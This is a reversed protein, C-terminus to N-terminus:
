WAYICAYNGLESVVRELFALVEAEVDDPRDTKLWKPIYFEPWRPAKMGVVLLVKQGVAECQALMSQIASLDFVDATPQVESWYVGLRIIDLDVTLLQSFSKNHDLKLHNIEHQSYTTGLLM